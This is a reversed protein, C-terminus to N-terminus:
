RYTADPMAWFLVKLRYRSAPVAKM